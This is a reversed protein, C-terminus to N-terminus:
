GDLQVSFAPGVRLFLAQLSSLLAGTASDGHREPRAARLLSCNTLGSVQSKSGLIVTSALALLLKGTRGFKDTATSATTLRYGVPGLTLV